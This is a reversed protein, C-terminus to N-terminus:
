FEERQTRHVPREVRARKGLRTSGM